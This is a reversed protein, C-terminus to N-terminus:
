FHGCYQTLYCVDNNTKRIEKCYRDVYDHITQRKLETFILTCSNDNPDSLICECIKKFIARDTGGDGIIGINRETM